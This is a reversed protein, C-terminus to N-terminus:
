LLVEDHLLRSPEVGGGERPVLGFATHVTDFVFASYRCHRLVHAHDEVKHCLPCLKSGVRHGMRGGIPLKNWVVRRMADLDWKPLHLQGCPKWVEPSQRPAEVKRIQAFHEAAGLGGGVAGYWEPGFRVVRLSRGYWSQASM